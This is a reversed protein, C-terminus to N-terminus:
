HQNSKRDLYWGPYPLETEMTEFLRSFVDDDSLAKRNGLLILKHRARSMAVNLRREDSLHESVISDSMGLSVIIVDRQSGQFRDVTSVSDLIQKGEGTHILHMEKLLSELQRRVLEVQARRPCIIGMADDRDLGFKATILAEVIHSVIQAETLNTRLGGRSDLPVDVFKVSQQPDLVQREFGDLDRVDITLRAEAVKSTGPRLAGRYYMAAPIACIQDNMRYQDKLLVVERGSNKVAREYLIEFLSKSLRSWPEKSHDTEYQFIGDSQVVAPLQHHDGILVFRKAFSVCGVTAPVTLQAAEDIVALDFTGLVREYKGSQLSSATIGVVSRNSLANIGKSIKSDLPEIDQILHHLTLARVSNDTVSGPDGIRLAESKLEGTAVSKM